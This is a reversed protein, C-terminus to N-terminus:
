RQSPPATPVADLWYIQRLSMLPAAFSAPPQLSPDSAMRQVAQGLSQRDFDLEATIAESQGGNTIYSQAIVVPSKAALTEKMTQSWVETSETRNGIGVRILADLNALVTEYESQQRDYEAESNRWLSTRKEQIFSSLEDAIIKRNALDEGTSVDTVAALVNAKIEGWNSAFIRNFRPHQFDLSFGSHGQIVQSTNSEFQQVVLNKSRQGELDFQTAIMIGVSMNFSYKLNAAQNLSEIKFKSICASTIANQHGSQELLSIEKALLTVFSRDWPIDVAKLKPFAQIVSNRVVNQTLQIYPESKSLLVRVGGGGGHMNVSFDNVSLLQPTVNACFPITPGVNQFPFSPDVEQNMGKIVDIRTADHPASNQAHQLAARQLDFAQNLFLELREGRFAPQFLLTQVFNQLDLGAEVLPAIRLDSSTGMRLDERFEPNAVTMRSFLFATQTWVTPHALPRPYEQGSPDVLLRLKEYSESAPFYLSSFNQAPSTSGSIVGASALQSRAFVTGREIYFDRCSIFAPRELPLLELNGTERACQRDGDGIMMRAIDFIQDDAQRRNLEMQRRLHAIAQNILETNHLAADSQDISKTMLASLKWDLQDIRSGLEVRMNEIQTSIQQLMEFIAPYPSEPQQSIAIAQYIMVGAYLYLNAAALGSNNQAQTIFEMAKSTKAMRDLFAAEHPHDIASLLFSASSLAQATENFFKIRERHRAQIVLDQRTEPSALIQSQDALTQKIESALDKLDDNQEILTRVGDKTEMQDKRLSADRVATSDSRDLRPDQINYKKLYEELIRGELTGARIEDMAWDWMRRTVELGLDPTDPALELTQLAGEEFLPLVVPAVFALQPVAAILGLGGLGVASRILVEAGTGRLQLGQVNIRQADAADRVFQQKTVELQQPRTFEPVVGPIVVPDFQYIHTKPDMDYNRSATWVSYAIASFTYVRSDQERLMHDAIFRDQQQPTWGASEPATKPVPRADIGGPQLPAAFAHFGFVFAATAYLWRVSINFPM